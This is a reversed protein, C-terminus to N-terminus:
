KLKRELSQLYSVEKRVFQDIKNTMLLEIDKGKEKEEIPIRQSDRNDRIREIKYIERVIVINLM